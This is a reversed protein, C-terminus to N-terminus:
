ARAASRIMAAVVLHHFPKIINFYVSGTWHKYHVVTVVHLPRVGHDGPAVVVALMARLHKEEAEAAWVGDAALRVTFFGAKAGPQSPLTAASFIPPRPMGEQRMGLLRVFVARVRYLASIWRPQYALMAATFAPLSASTEITRVDIHHAGLLASRLAATVALPRYGEARARILWAQPLLLWGGSRPMPIVVCLALLFLWLGLSRPLPLSTATERERLAVGLIIFGLGAVLFWLVAMRMPSEPGVSDFLGARWMAVLEHRCEAAGLVEHLLGTAILLSGSSIRM